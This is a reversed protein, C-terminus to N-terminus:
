LIILIRDYFLLLVIYIAIRFTLPHDFYEVFNNELQHKLKGAKHVAYYQIQLSFNIAVNM